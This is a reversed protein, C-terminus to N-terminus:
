AAEVRLAALVEAADFRLQHGVRYHPIVGSEALRQVSRVSINLMESLAEPGEL